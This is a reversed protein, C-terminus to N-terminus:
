KLAAPEGDIVFACEGCKLSVVVQFLSCGWLDMGVGKDIAVGLSSVGFLKDGILKCNEGCFIVGGMSEYWCFCCTKVLYEDTISGFPHKTGLLGNGNICFFSIM